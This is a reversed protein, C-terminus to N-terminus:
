EFLGEPRNKMPRDFLLSTEFGAQHSPVETLLRQIVSAEHARDDDVDDQNKRADRGAEKNSGEPHVLHGGLTVPGRNLGIPRM